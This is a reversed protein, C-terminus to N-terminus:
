QNQNLGIRRTLDYFRPDNRLDAFESHYSIFPLLFLHEEYAKELHRFAQDKEGLQAYKAAIHFTANYKDPSQELEDIEYKVFGRWGGSRYAAYWKSSEIQEATQGRAISAAYHIGVM